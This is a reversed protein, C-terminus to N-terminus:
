AAMEGRAERLHRKAHWARSASKWAAWTAARWAAKWFRVQVRDMTISLAAWMVFLAAGIRSLRYM